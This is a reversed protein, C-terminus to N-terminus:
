ELDLFMVADVFSKKTLATYDPDSAFKEQLARFVKLKHPSAKIEREMIEFSGMAEIVDDDATLEAQKTQELVALKENNIRQTEASAYLRFIESDMAAAWDMDDVM